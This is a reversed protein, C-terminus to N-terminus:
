YLGAGRLRHKALVNATPSCAHQLITCHTHIVSWAATQLMQQIFSQMSCNNATLAVIYMSYMCLFHVYTYLSRPCNRKYMKMHNVVYNHIHLIYVYTHIYTSSHLTLIFEKGVTDLSVNTTQLWYVHWVSMLRLQCMEVHVCHGHFRLLTHM